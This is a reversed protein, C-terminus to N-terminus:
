ASGATSDGIVSQQQFAVHHAFATSEDTATRRDELRRQIQRSVATKAQGQITLPPAELKRHGAAVANEAQRLENRAPQSPHRGHQGLRIACRHNLNGKVLELGYHSRTWDLQWESKIGRANRPKLQKM